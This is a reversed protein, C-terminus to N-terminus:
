AAKTAVVRYRYVARGDKRDEKSKEVKFGKTKAVKKLCNLYPGGNVKTVEATTAGNKRQYMTVAKHTKSTVAFGFEDRKVRAKAEKKAKSAKAVKGGKAVKKKALKARKRPAQKEASPTPTQQEAQTNTTDTQM